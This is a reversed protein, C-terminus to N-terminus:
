DPVRTRTVVTDTAREALSQHKGFLPFVLDVILPIFLLVAMVAVLVASGVARWYGVSGGDRAVVLRTGLLRRGITRGGWIRPLLSWYTFPAVYLLLNGVVLAAADGPRYGGQSVIWASVLAMLGGLAVWDIALGAMRRAYSVAVPQPFRALTAGCQPCFNVDQPGRLQHGCRHCFGPPASPIPDAIGM